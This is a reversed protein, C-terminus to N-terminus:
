RPVSAVVQALPVVWVRDIALLILRDGALAFNAMKVPAARGGSLFAEANFLGLIKGNESRVVIGEFEATWVRGYDDIHIGDPNGYRAYGFLRKNSPFGQGDLDFVYIAPSNTVNPSGGAGSLAVSGTDTVYLKTGNANARVGNPMSIDTRSIVPQLVQDEPCFRWVASPLVAPPLYGKAISSLDLTSFFLIDKQQVSTWGLDDPGGIPAGFYSNLVEEAEYSSPDVAVISPTYTENGLCGLYVRGNFYFGGIPNVLPTSVTPQTTTNDNLHLVYLSSTMGPVPNTFWVENRDPLWVGAEYATPTSYSAVIEARPSSGIISDFDPEYTVFAATQAAAFEEQLSTDGSFTTDVFGQTANASFPRPLLFTDQPALRASSTLSTPQAIAQLTFLTSCLAIVKGLAM